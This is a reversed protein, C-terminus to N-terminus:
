PQSRLGRKPKKIWRGDIEVFGESRARENDAIVQLRDAECCCDLLYCRECIPGPAQSAIEEFRTEKPPSVIVIKIPM